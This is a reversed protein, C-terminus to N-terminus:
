IAFGNFLTIILTLVCVASLGLSFFPLPGGSIRRLGMKSWSAAAALVLTLLLVMLFAAKNQGAHDVRTGAPGVLPLAMSLVFFALGSLVALATGTSPRYMFEIQQSHENTDM